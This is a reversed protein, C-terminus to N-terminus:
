TFCKANRSRYIKGEFNRCVGNSRLQASCVPGKYRLLTNLGTVFGGIYSEEQHILLLVCSENLAAGRIDQHIQFRRVRLINIEAKRSRAFQRHLIVEYEAIIGAFALFNNLGVELYIELWM